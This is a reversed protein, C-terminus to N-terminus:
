CGKAQENYLRLLFRVQKHVQKWNVPDYQGQSAQVELVRLLPPLGELHIKM